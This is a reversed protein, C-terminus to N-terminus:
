VRRGGLGEALIYKKVIDLDNCQFYPVWAETGDDYKLQFDINKKPTYYKNKQNPSIRHGTVAQVLMDYSDTAAIKAAQETSIDKSWYKKIKDRHVTMEKSTVLDRLLYDSAKRDVM